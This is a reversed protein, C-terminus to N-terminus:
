CRTKHSPCHGCTQRFLQNIGSITEAPVMFSRGPARSCEVQKWANALPPTYHARFGFIPATTQHPQRGGAPLVKRSGGRHRAACASPGPAPGLACETMSPAGRAPVFTSADNCLTIPSKYTDFPKGQCPCTPRAPTNGRFHKGPFWQQALRELSPCTGPPCPEQKPWNAFPCANQLLEDSSLKFFRRTLPPLKMNNIDQNPWSERVGM